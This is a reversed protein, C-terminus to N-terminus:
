VSPTFRNACVGGVWGGVFNLGYAFTEEHKIEFGVDGSNSGLNVCFTKAATASVNQKHLLLELSKPQSPDEVV